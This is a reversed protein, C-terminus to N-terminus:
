QQGELVEVVKRNAGTGQTLAAHKFLRDAIYYNGRVTYNILAETEGQKVMLTPMDDGLTNDPFQIYVHQTDDFARIPKWAVDAGTITYNFNLNPEPQEVKASREAKEHAALALQVEEPYYFEVQAMYPAHTRLAFQYTRHNTPVVLNTTIGPDVPKVMLQNGVVGVSWRVYDGIAVGAPDVKEDPGLIIQTVHLPLCNVPTQAHPDYPFLTTMGIHVPILNNSLIADRVEPPLGLLPNPPLEAKTTQGLVSAPVYPQQPTPAPKTSCGVLATIAYMLAAWLVLFWAISRMM